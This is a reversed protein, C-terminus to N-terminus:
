EGKAAKEKKRLAISRVTKSQGYRIRAITSAPLCLVLNALISHAWYPISFEEYGIARLSARAWVSPMPCTLTPKRRKENPIAMKTVVYLPIHAHVTVGTGKLESSLSRSFWEVFAKSAGYITYFPAAINGELSGVNIIGGKKRQLMGPLVLRTMKVLSANNVEMINEIREDTLDQLVEAHEYSVGVNNYLIGIDLDRLNAGLKAYDAPSGKSFDFSIIKTQVTPSKDKIEKEAAKLKDMSRSVLVVNLGKKAAEKALALGIGDTAGTVVAWSGLKKINKGPRLFTVFIFKLLKSVLRVVWVMGIVALLLGGNAMFVDM